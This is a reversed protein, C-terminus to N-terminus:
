NVVLDTAQQLEGILQLGIRRLESIDRHKPGSMQDLEILALMLSASLMIAHTEGAAADSFAEALDTVRDRFSSM